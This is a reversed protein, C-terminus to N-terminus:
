IVGIMKRLNSFRPNALAKTFIDAKQDESSIRDITVVGNRVLSVIGFYKPRIHKNNDTVRHDVISRIASTNDCWVQIKVLSEPFLENLVHIMWSSEQTARHVAIIEAEM